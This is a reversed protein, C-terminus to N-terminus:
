PIIWNCKINNALSHYVHVCNQAYLILMITSLTQFVQHSRCTTRLHTCIKHRTESYKMLTSKSGNYLGNLTDCSTIRSKVTFTIFKEHYILINATTAWGDTSSFPEWNLADGFDIVTLKMLIEQSHWREWNSISLNNVSKFQFGVYLHSNLTCAFRFIVDLLCKTITFECNKM